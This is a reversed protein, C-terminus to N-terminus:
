NGTTRSNGEEEEVLVSRGGGKHRNRAHKTELKTEITIRNSMRCVFVFLLLCVVVVFLCGDDEHRLLTRVM